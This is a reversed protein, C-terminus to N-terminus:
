QSQSFKQVKIAHGPIYNEQMVFYQTCVHRFVFQDSNTFGILQDNM